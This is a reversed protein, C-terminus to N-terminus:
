SDHRAAGDAVDALREAQGLVDRGRQGVRDPAAPALPMRRALLGALGPEVGGIGHDPARHIERM